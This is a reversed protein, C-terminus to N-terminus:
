VEGFDAVDSKSKGYFDVMKQSKGLKIGKWKCGRNIKKERNQKREM